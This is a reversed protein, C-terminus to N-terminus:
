SHTSSSWLIYKLGYIYMLKSKITMLPDCLMSLIIIINEDYFMARYVINFFTAALYAPTETWFLHLVYVMRRTLYM